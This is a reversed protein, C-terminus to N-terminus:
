NKAKAQGADGNRLSSDYASVFFNTKFRKRHCLFDNGKKENGDFNVEFIKHKRKVRDGTMLLQIFNRVCYSPLAM